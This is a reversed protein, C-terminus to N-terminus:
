DRPATPPAARFRKWRSAMMLYLLILNELRLVTLRRGGTLQVRICLYATQKDGYLDLGIATIRAWPILRTRLFDKVELGEKRPTVTHPQRLVHFAMPMTAVVIFLWVLLRGELVLPSGFVLVAFVGLVAASHLLFSRSGRFTVAAALRDDHLDALRGCVAGLLEAFRRTGYYVPIPAAGDDAVVDVKRGSVDELYRIAEWAVERRPGGPPHYALGAPGIEYTHPPQLEPAFTYHRRDPMPRQNPRFRPGPTACSRGTSAGGTPGRGKLTSKWPVKEQGMPTVPGPELRGQPRHERGDKERGCPDLLREPGHFAGAALDM